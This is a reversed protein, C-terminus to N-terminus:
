DAYATKLQTELYDKALPAEKALDTWRGEIFVKGQYDIKKLAKFYPIFNENNVGPRTRGEKEAVEVYSIVDAANLISNPSENERLMHYIDANLRFNPHNIARVVEAADALTTMFNTETSNLNELFIKVNNKQALGAMKKGLSIFNSIAQQRNVDDEIKRASGSGLVIAEIGLISARKFVGEAHSLVKVEDVDKGAIKIDSPFFVNCMYVHCKASKVKRKNEQFDAESLRPSVMRAVGEGIYKYGAKYVVSDNSIQTAIGIEPIKQGYANSLLFSAILSMVHVKM